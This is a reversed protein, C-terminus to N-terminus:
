DVFIRIINTVRLAGYAGYVEKGTKKYKKIYIDSIVYSSLDQLSVM